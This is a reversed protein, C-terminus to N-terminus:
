ARAPGRRRQGDEFFMAPAGEPVALGEAVDRLSAALARRRAPTLKGIAQILRQQALDPAGEAARRGRATLALGVARGDVASPARRVLGQDVLRAVVMSVSSQHTHTRAALENVSSAPADALRQLVFLQAGSLGSHQEARRSSERLAQVIRRIADM